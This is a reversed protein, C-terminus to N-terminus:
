RYSKQRRTRAKSDGPKNPEKRRVDAVLLTRDYSTLKEKLEKSKTAAFISKAIALREAETQSNVGGGKSNVDIDYNLDGLTKKAIEIPEQIMLKKMQPLLEYPVKNIKIKGTGEKITAKALSRKRKGSVTIKENM